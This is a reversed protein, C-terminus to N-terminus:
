LYQKLLSLGSLFDNNISELYDLNVKCQVPFRKLENAMRIIGAPCMFAPTCCEEVDMSFYKTEDFLPEKVDVGFLEKVVSNSLQIFFPIRVVKYGLSEYFKTREIDYLIQTPKQYHPLGDFEVILNLTESRWDPRFKRGSNQIVKDYIWDTVDPFIVKAYEDFGTRHFKTLKDYGTAKSSHERLYGWKDTSKSIM